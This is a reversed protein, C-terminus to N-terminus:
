FDFSYAFKVVISRDIDALLGHGRRFTNVVIYLDDGPRYNYRLRFNMGILERTNSYQFVTSTMWKRSFAINLRNNMVHVNVPQGGALQIRNLSYSIEASVHNSLNLNGLMDWGQRRGG